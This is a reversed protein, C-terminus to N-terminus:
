MDGKEKFYEYGIYKILTRLNGGLRAPENFIAYAQEVSELFKFPKFGVPMVIFWEELGNCSRKIVDGVSTSRYRGIESFPIVYPNNIWPEDINQTAEFGYSLDDSKVYAVARFQDEPLYVISVDDYKYKEFDLFKENHWIQLM